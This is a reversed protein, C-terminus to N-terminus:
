VWQKTTEDWTTEAVFTDTGPPRAVPVSQRDRRAKVRDQPHRPEWCKERCVYLGDWTKRLQSFKYKFGCRDCIANWDGPKFYDASM